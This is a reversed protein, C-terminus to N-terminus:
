LVVLAVLMHCPSYSLNGGATQIDRSPPTARKNVRQTACTAHELVPGLLAGYSCSVYSVLSLALQDGATQIERSSLTARKNIQTLKAAEKVIREFMDGAFTNMVQMGQKSIGVDPHVEKLM